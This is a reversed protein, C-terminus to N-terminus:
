EAWFMIDKKGHISRTSAILKNEDAFVKSATEFRIWHKTFNIAAKEDDWEFVANGYDFDFNEYMRRSGWRGTDWYGVLTRSQYWGQPCRGAETEM